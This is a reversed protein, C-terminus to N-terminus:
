ECFLRNILTYNFHQPTGTVSSWNISKNGLALHINKIYKKLSSILESNSDVNGTITINATLPNLQYQELIFLVYYLIDEQTKAPYQNALVLKQEQKVVVEMHNAHIALVIQEKVLEESVLMLKSLVTLTHRLQHHPFIQDLTSKLAEDIAYILKIDTNIDDTLILQNSVSGANFELMSRNNDSNYFATPCLTFQHTFYNVNVHEYKKKSFQFHKIASVLQESLSHKLANDIPYHCIFLPKNQASQLESFSILSDSIEIVLSDALDSSQGFTTHNIHIQAIM